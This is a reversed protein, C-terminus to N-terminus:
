TVGLVGDRLGLGVLALVAIGTPRTAPADMRRNLYRRAGPLHERRRDHGGAPARTGRHTRRRPLLVRGAARAAHHGAAHRALRHHHLLAAGPGGQAARHGPLAGVARARGPPALAGARRSLVASRGAAPPDGRRPHRGRGRPPDAARAARRGSGLQRHLPAAGAPPVDPAGREAARPGPHRGRPRPFARLPSPGSPEAHARELPSGGRPRPLTGAAGAYLRARPAGPCAGAREARDRSAGLRLRGRGPPREARAATRRAGRGATAGDRSQASRTRDRPLEPPALLNRGRRGTHAPEPAPRRALAAAPRRVTPGTARRCLAGDVQEPALVIVVLTRRRRDPAM